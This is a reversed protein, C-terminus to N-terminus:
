LEQAFRGELRRFVLQGVALLVLSGALALVGDWVLGDPIQWRDAPVDAVPYWFARHFLEVAVTLPNHLYLWLLVSGEGLSDRVLTWPYLVPSLWVAVMLILDVINELDRYLVDLAGFLLGLGLALTVVVLVGLLAVALEVLGPRWGVVVCGVLLVVVQPVFHVLGVWISSVPFLERPLYIKKVLPANGVVARTANGFCESFLNVAIMGSFLYIAFPPLTDRQQLFEGLAFFFVAFQVAPKVYSWALGLVSGRYRVRLEKRVLLRLLYRQRLVDVLGLGRGPAVLPAESPSASM